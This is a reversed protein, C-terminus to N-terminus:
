RKSGGESIALQTTPPPNTVDVALTVTAALEVAPLPEANAGGQFSGPRCQDIALV